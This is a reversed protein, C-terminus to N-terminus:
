NRASHAGRELAIQVLRVHRQLLCSSTSSTRRAYVPRNDTSINRKENTVIAREHYKYSMGWIGHQSDDYCSLETQGWFTAGLDEPGGGRGLIVGLMYHEISPRLVLLDSAICRINDNKTFQHQPFVFYDIHSILDISNKDAKLAQTFTKAKNQLNDFFTVLNNSLVVQSLESISQMHNWLQQQQAVQAIANAPLNDDAAPDAPQAEPMGDVQLFINQLMTAYVHMIRNRQDEDHQENDLIYSFNENLFIKLLMLFYCYHLAEKNAKEKKLSVMKLRPKDDTNIEVVFDLNRL